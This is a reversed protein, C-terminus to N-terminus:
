VTRAYSSPSMDIWAFHLCTVSQGRYFDHLLPVYEGDGFRYRECRRVADHGGILRSGGNPFSWLQLHHDSRRRRERRKQRFPRYRDTCDSLLNDISQNQEVIFRYRSKLFHRLSQFFPRVQEQGWSPRARHLQRASVTSSKPEPPPALCQQIQSHHNHKLLFNPDVLLHPQIQIRLSEHRISRKCPTPEDNSILPHMEVDGSGRKMPQLSSDHQVPGNDDIYQLFPPM